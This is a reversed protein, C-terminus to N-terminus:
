TFFSNLFFDHSENMQVFNRDDEIEDWELKYYSNSPVIYYEDDEEITSLFEDGNDYTYLSLLLDVDEVHDKQIYIKEALYIKKVKAKKM